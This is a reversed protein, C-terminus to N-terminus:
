TAEIVWSQINREKSSFNVAIKFVKLDATQFPADYRRDNIQEMAKAATKDFKFEFIYAFRDTTVVLDTVGRNNHCEAHVDRKLLTFLLFIVNHLTAETYLAQEHPVNAILAKLRHMFGEPNGNNVDEVFRGINFRGEDSSSAYARFALQDFGTRVEQNPFGITYRNAMGDFAKISLYGSQYLTAIPSGEPTNIGKLVDANVNIDDRFRSLDYSGKILTRILYTPTGTDFWYDDLKKQRFCSLLSFPNYICETLRPDSFNYGDYKAKLIHLMEDYSVNWFEALKAISDSFYPLLESESVGCIANYDYDLSIDYLNNLDSFVSVKSFRAVGTFMAFRIKDDSSKTVGYFAKLRSSIDDLLNKNCSSNLLPKDYEDVLIVAPQDMEETSRDILITLRNPFTDGEKPVIGYAKEYVSLQMDISADLDALSKPEVTNFDFHFVPHCAWENEYESIALGEFLQKKGMFYAEATSLFLSKGFRRPRSLFVPSFQQALNWLYETKDVYVCGAKRLKEFSQLGIPYIVNKKEM